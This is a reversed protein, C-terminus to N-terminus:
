DKEREAIKSLLIEREPFDHKGDADIQYTEHGKGAVLIIDGDKAMDIAYELARRRDSEVVLAGKKRQMGGLIDNIIKEPAESRPNDSTLIVEDALVEAIEGMIPRKSRDRDGGCGFLVRIKRKGSGRGCYERLAGLTRALADPTHAYDIIVTYRRNYIKEFRGPVGGFSSVARSVCKMDVGDTLAACSAALTNLINFEGSLPSEIVFVGHPSCMEYAIGDLSNKIIRAVRYDALSSKGYGCLSCSCNQSAIYSNIDDYNFIGRKCQEFLKAKASAYNEMTGHFDLHDRTLNTYIGCEFFIESVRELSLSHSSVEIFLYEVGDDAMSRLTEYLKEPPDTTNESERFKGCWFSGLTGSVGCRVGAETYISNLLSVVSTKGNTGTVGFVKMKNQPNGYWASYISAAARRTNPLVIEQEIGLRRESVVAVAGRDLAQRAYDHGDSHEGKICIFLDGKKVKRSDVSIGTIEVDKDVAILRSLKM